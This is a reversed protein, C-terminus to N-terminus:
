ATRIFMEWGCGMFQHGGVSKWPQATPFSQSLHSQHLLNQLCMARNWVTNRCAVDRKNRPLLCWPLFVGLTRTLCVGNNFLNSWRQEEDKELPSLNKVEHVAQMNPNARGVSTRQRELHSGNLPRPHSFHLHIDARGQGGESDPM